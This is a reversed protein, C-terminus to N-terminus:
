KKKTKSETAIDRSPYHEWYYSLGSDKIHYELDEGKSNKLSINAGHGKLILVGGFCGAKAAYIIATDGNVDQHNINAGNGMLFKVSGLECERVATFIPTRKKIKGEM